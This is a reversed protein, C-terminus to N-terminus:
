IPNSRSGRGAPSKRTEEDDSGSGSPPRTLAFLEPNERSRRRMRHFGRKDTNKPVRLSANRRSLGSPPKQREIEEKEEATLGSGIPVAGARSM